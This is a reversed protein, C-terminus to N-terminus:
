FHALGVQVEGKREKRSPLNNKASVRGVSMSV